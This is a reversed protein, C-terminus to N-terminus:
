SYVNGNLLEFCKHQKINKHFGHYMKKQINQHISVEFSCHKNSIYIKQLM